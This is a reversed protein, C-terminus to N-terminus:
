SPKRTSGTRHTDSAPAPDTPAWTWRAPEFTVVQKFDHLYDFLTGEPLQGASAARFYSREVIGAVLFQNGIAEPHGHRQCAASLMPELKDQHLILLDCAPCYPGTMNLVTPFAPFILVLFPNKRLKTPRHCQPCASYRLDPYPNLFFRHLPPLKGVPPSPTKAATKKKGM